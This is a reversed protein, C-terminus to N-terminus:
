KLFLGYQTPDGLARRYYKEDPYPRYVREAECVKCDKKWRPNTKDKAGLDTFTFTMWPWVRIFDAAIMPIGNKQPTVTGYIRVLTLAAVPVDSAEVRAAFDGSGSMSVLMIHCDTM